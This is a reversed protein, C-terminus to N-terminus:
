CLLHPFKTAFLPQQTPLDGLDGIATYCVKATWAVNYIVSTPLYILRYYMWSILASVFSVEVLPVPGRESDIKLAFFLKLFDITIDTIDHIYLVLLGVRM